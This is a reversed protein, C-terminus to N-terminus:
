HHSAVTLSAILDYVSLAALHHLPFSRRRLRRCLMIIDRASGPTMSSRQQRDAAPAQKDRAEFL